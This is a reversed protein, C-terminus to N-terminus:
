RIELWVDATRRDHPPPEDRSDDRNSKPGDIAAVVPPSTPLGVPLKVEVALENRGRLRDQISFHQRAHHQEDVPTLPTGNLTVTSVPASNDVVLDVQSTTELGTPRHFHRTLRVRGRFDRGLPGHWPGPLRLTGEVQPPEPPPEASDGHDDLRCSRIVRFHWPGRLRIRHIAPM